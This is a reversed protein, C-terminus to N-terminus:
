GVRAQRVMPTVVPSGGIQIEGMVEFGHREYLSINRPNSSELYAVAGQEDILALAHKMLAAGVGKGQHAPDVGIMPLYWCPEEPHYQGMAEFVAFVEELMEEKCLRQFEAAMTDGDPEVGPPLWMTVGEFGSSAFATGHDVARGAFGNMGAKMGLYVGAEPCIWRTLPDSAFGLLLTDLARGRDAETIPEIHVQQMRTRRNQAVGNKGTSRIYDVAVPM